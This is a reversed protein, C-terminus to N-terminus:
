LDSRLRQSDQQHNPKKWCFSHYCFFVISILKKKRSFSFVYWFTIGCMLVALQHPNTGGGAYRRNAYWLPARLFVKSVTRSFIYLFSYWLTSFRCITDFIFINYEPHNHEAVRLLVCSIVALFAWTPWSDLRVEDPSISSCILTGFLMCTIFVAFFKALFSFRIRKPSCYRMAWVFCLIEAPGIKWIRLGTMPSLVAGIILLWDWCRIRIRPNM